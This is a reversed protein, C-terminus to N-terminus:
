QRQCYLHAQAGVITGGAGSIAHLRISTDYSVLEQDVEPSVRHATGAGTKVDEAANLLSVFTGDLAEDTQIDLTGTAGAASECGLDAALLTFPWPSDVAVSNNNSGDPTPTFIAHTWIFFSPPNTALQELALSDISSFDALRRYRGSAATTGSPIGDPLLVLAGIKGAPNFEAM